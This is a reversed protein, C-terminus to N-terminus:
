KVYSEALEFYKRASKLARERESKELAFNDTQFSMVKGRVYARYIKYFDLIEYLRSDKSFKVYYDILLESLKSAGNYDLDMALFAIDAATDSYRFRDNFEICDFIVIKDTICVHEMHLDGHCDKIRGEAVRRKILDPSSYFSDTYKKILKYQEETITIGIYKKTQNFNEDTNTKIIELDGFEAIKASSEANAHFEAIKKAVRKIMQETLKGEKLLNSMLKHMPLKKMKVAYDIIEGSGGFVLAGHKKVVPIVDVYVESALRKNLLVEQECYYKRKAPTSFDLFGFNVPKKVKYVFNDTIFVWSIHTQLLEVKNTHEPYAKPTLLERVRLEM